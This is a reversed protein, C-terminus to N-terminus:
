TVAEYTYFSTLDWRNDINYCYRLIPVLQHGSMYESNSLQEDVASHDADWMGTSMVKRTQRLVRLVCYM